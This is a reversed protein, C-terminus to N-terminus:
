AADLHTRHDLAEVHLFVFTAQQYHFRRKLQRLVHVDEREPVNGEIRISRRRECTRRLKRKLLPIERAAIDLSVEFSSFHLRLVELLKTFRQTQPRLSRRHQSAPLRKTSRQRSLRPERQVRRPQWRPVM